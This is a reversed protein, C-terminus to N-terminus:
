PSTAKALESSWIPGIARVTASAAASYSTTAPWSGRSLVEIGSGTAATLAPSSSPTVSRRTPRTVSSHSASPM